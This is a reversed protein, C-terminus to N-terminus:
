DEESDSDSEPALLEAAMRLWALRGFSAAGAVAYPVLGESSIWVSRRAVELYHWAERPSVPPGRSNGTRHPTCDVELRRQSDWHPEMLVVCGAGNPTGDDDGGNPQDSYEEWYSSHIALERYWALSDNFEDKVERDIANVLVQTDEILLMDGEKGVVRVECDDEVLGMAVDVVKTGFDSEITEPEPWHYVKVGEPLDETGWSYHYDRPHYSDTCRGSQVRVIHGLHKLYWDLCRLRSMFNAM